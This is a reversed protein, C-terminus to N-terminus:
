IVTGRFSLTVPTEQASTVVTLNKKFSGKTAANFTAKIITSEGPLVPTKSYEAVTCGCSAQVNSILVPTDGMNTFEYNLTVPKNQPIEGLDIETVKWKIATNANVVACSAPGMVPAFSQFFFSMTIIGAAAASRFLNTKM